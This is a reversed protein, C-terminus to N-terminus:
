SAGGKSKPMVLMGRMWPIVRVTLGLLRKGQHYEAHFSMATRIEPACMLEAFDESGILIEAPERGYAFLGERTRYLREVVNATDIAHRTYTITEDRAQPVAGRWALFRWALRQLSQFRGSPKFEYRGPAPVLSRRETTEIFQVFDRV